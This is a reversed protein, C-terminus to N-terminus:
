LLGELTNMLSRLIPLATYLAMVCGLYEVAASAAAQGADRCIDASLRAILAIGVCKMLPSFVASSIGTKEILEVVYDVIKDIFGIAAFLVTVAGLVALVFSYEPNKNKILLACLCSVLLVASAKILLEM